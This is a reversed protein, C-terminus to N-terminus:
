NRPDPVAAFATGRGFGFGRAIRLCITTDEIRLLSTARILPRTNPVAFIRELWEIESITQEANM